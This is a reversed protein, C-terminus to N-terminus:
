FNLSQQASSVDPEYNRNNYPTTYGDGCCRATIVCKISPLIIRQEYHVTESGPLWWTGVRESPPGASCINSSLSSAQTQGSTWLCLLSLFGMIRDSPFFDWSGTVPCTPDRGFIGPSDRWTQHNYPTFHAHGENNVKYFTFYLFMVRPLSWWKSMAVDFVPGREGSIYIGICM